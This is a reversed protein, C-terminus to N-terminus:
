AMCSRTNRMWYSSTISRSQLAGSCQCCCGSLFFPLTGAFLDDRVEGHAFEMAVLRCKVIPKNKTGKNSRVGKVKGLKVYVQDWRVHNHVQSSKFRM